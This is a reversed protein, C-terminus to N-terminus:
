LSLGDMYASIMTFLNSLGTTFILVGAIVAALVLATLVAYEAASAGSEDAILRKM